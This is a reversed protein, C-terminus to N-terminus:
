LKVDNYTESNHRILYLSILEMMTDSRCKHHIVALSYRHKCFSKTYPYPEEVPWLDCLKNSVTLRIAYKSLLNFKSGSGSSESVASKCDQVGMKPALVEM